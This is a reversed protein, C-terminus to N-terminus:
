IGRGRLLEAGNAPRLRIEHVPVGAGRAFGITEETGGGRTGTWVAVLLGASVALRRNRETYGHAVEVSIAHRLTHDLTARDEASWDARFREPPCPLILAFPLGLSIAALAAWTDV